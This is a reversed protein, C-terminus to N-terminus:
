REATTTDGLLRRLAWDVHERLLPSYDRRAHLADLVKDSRRGNGLGVALNRLWREYGIRRIPSGATRQEFTQEDWLFLDVMDSSDLEHRPRFDQEDTPRAFKNWPCVLQCDDCGFVRNGMAARYQEPIAGKLEITLYSICKRADLERPGVFAGTPCIDLCATCSGCHPEATAEDFPLELDTYLEGLFFWSGASSNILMTNKGIWGLGAREAFARELVPASDVFPRMNGATGQEHIKKALKALRRRITKHYDRGLAYRAIYAREPHDLLQVSQADAPSYDMRLSVVSRVGPFLQEPNNRLQERDLMYAMEGHHQQALWARLYESHRGPDPACIGVQQFGLAAGWHKINGALTIDDGTKDQLSKSM